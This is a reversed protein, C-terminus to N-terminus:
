PISRFRAFVFHGARIRKQQHPIVFLVEDRKYKQKSKNSGVLKGCELRKSITATPTNTAYFKNHTSM